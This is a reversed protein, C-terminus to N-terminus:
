SMCVAGLAAAGVTGGAVAEAALDGDAGMLAFVLRQSVHWAVPWELESQSVASGAVM